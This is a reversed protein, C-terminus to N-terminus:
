FQTAAKNELEKENIESLANDSIFFSFKVPKDSFQNYDYSMIIKTQKNKGHYWGDDGYDTKATFKLPIGYNNEVATKFKNYTSKYVRDVNVGDDSPSFGIAYITGDNLTMVYVYGEIGAVVDMKGKEDYESINNGIEFGRLSQAYGIMGILMVAITFLKKM